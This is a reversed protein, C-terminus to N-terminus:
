QWDSKGTKAETESICFNAMLFDDYTKKCADQLRKKAKSSAIKASSLLGMAANYLEGINKYALYCRGLHYQTYRPIEDDGADLACFTEIGTQFFPYPRNCSSGM